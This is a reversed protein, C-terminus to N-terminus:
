RTRKKPVIPAPPTTDEEEGGGLAADAPKQTGPSTTNGGKIINPKKQITKPENGKDMKVDAPHKGPDEAAKGPVEGTVIQAIGKLFAMLAVREPKKLSQVYEDIASAVASDKFSKGSRISNLKEVIDKPQIDGKKLKETEDDMTKSPEEEPMDPMNSQADAAGGGEEGGADGGGGFLGSLGDDEEEGGGGVDTATKLQKEKETLAKQALSSKYGEDFVQGLFAQLTKGSTIKVTREM